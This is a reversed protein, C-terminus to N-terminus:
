HRYFGRSALWLPFSEELGELLHRCDPCLRQNKKPTPPIRGEEEEPLLEGCCDCFYM